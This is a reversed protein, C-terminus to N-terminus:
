KTKNTTLTNGHQKIDPGCNIQSSHEEMRKVNYENNNTEVHEMKNGGNVTHEIHVVSETIQKITETVYKM